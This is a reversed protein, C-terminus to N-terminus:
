NLLQLRLPASNTDLAVFHCVVIENRHLEIHIQLDPIYICICVYM